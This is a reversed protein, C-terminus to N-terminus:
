HQISRWWSQKPHCPLSPNPNPNPATWHSHVQQSCRPPCKHGEVRWVMGVQTSAWLVKGAWLMKAWCCALPLAPTVTRVM